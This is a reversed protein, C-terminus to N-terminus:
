SDKENSGNNKDEEILTSISNKLKNEAQMLLSRYYIYTHRTQMMGKIEHLDSIQETLLDELNNMLEIVEKLDSSEIKLTM